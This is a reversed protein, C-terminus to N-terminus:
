FPKVAAFISTFFNLVSTKFRIDCFYLVLVCVAINLVLMCLLKILITKIKISCSLEFAFFLLFYVVAFFLFKEKILLFSIIVSSLVVLVGVARNSGGATKLAFIIKYLLFFGCLACILFVAAFSYSIITEQVDAKPVYLWYLFGNFVEVSTQGSYNGNLFQPILYFLMACFFVVEFFVDFFNLAFLKPKSLTKAPQVAPEANQQGETAAADFSAQTGASFAERRVKRANKKQEKKLYHASVAKYYKVKFSDFINKIKNKINSILKM